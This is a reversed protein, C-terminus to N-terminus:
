GFPSLNRTTEDLHNEADYDEGDCCYAIGSGNCRPCPLTQFDLLRRPFIGDDSRHGRDIRVQIMGKNCEPCIM